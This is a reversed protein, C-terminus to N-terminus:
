AHIGKILKLFLVHVYLLGYYSPLTDISRQGHRSVSEISIGTHWVYDENVLGLFLSGVQLRSAKRRFVQQPSSRDVLRIFAHSGELLCCSALWMGAAECANSCILSSPDLFTQGQMHEPRERISSGEQQHQRRRACMGRVYRDLAIETLHM